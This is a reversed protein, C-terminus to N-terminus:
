RALIRVLLDLCVIMLMSAGLVDRILRPSLVLISQGRQTAICAVFTSPLALVVYTPLASTRSLTFLGVGYALLISTICVRLRCLGEGGLIARNMLRCTNLPVLFSALFLTGGFFGLEAYSHVYSNHAVLGAEEAYQDKGIGFIPSGKFFALGDRWLLIRGQATDNEDTLNINTQRGAFLFLLLPMVIMGWKAARKWGMQMGMYAAVGALMALFGGRSKTLALAYGFLPLILGWGARRIWTASEIIFYGVAILGTVLILSFDNPDSFLGSAQLQLFYTREGTEPDISDGRELPRLAELNILGHYQLIALIATALVFLIMFALFQRIRAPSDVLAILLLFYILIKSFDIACMRASYFNGHSLHSLIIAPLLGIVCLVGPNKVLFTWRLRELVGGLSLILCSAILVEYIPLGVLSPFVEAPRIFLTATALVFLIYGAGFRGVEVNVLQGKPQGATPRNLTIPSFNFLM